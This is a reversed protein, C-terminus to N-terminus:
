ICQDAYCQPPHRVRSSRCPPPPTESNNQSNDNNYNSSSPPSFDDLTDADPKRVTATRFRIQDVNKRIMRGDNLKVTYSVPGRIRTINGSLWASSSGTSRVFVPDGENFALAKAHRDYYEKQMEQKVEVQDALYPCILDM